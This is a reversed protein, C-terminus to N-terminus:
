NRKSKEHIIVSLYAVGLVVIGAWLMLSDASHMSPAMLKDM